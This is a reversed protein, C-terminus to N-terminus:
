DGAQEERQRLLRDFEELKAAALAYVKKAPTDLFVPLAEDIHAISWVHFQGAAIAEEVERSLVLNPENAAPVVVGQTGSLKGNELCTRFFGEIKHHGGGIAQAHGHQNVSGTIARDQRVPLGSLDSLIAVLEALSASDGEVGGYSQEFTISCSFSLPHKQAFLGALFGQLVMVGKQQIPGGMAVDREINTVGKRGVSARATVRAPAGFAHDGLDRVVLANIQGTRTGETDILLAGRAISEQMRDEVRANRRQRNAIAAEVEAAGLVRDKGKTKAKPRPMHAAETVIDDILEFRATLKDRNAALRSAEGLLRSIGSEDFSIGGTAAAMERILGSYCAINEASA